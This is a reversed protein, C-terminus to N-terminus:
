ATVLSFSELIAKKVNSEMKNETVFKQNVELEIGSYNQPFKKRLFTTFGDAKGLYPYNFRVKFQPFHDNLSRKWKLCFEKESSRSPDFLLGFDADRIEGHLEPTFSHVSLHLVHKGNTTFNDVAKAVANRHPLYYEELIAKKAGRTLGLTFESFLQKHHLSRNPEVLLRTKTHIRHYDALPVLAEFLDLAGPDFGRHSDLIGGAEEFVSKFNAPVENGAHECTLVIKM